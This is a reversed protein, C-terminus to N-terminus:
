LQGRVGKRVSHRRGRTSLDGQLACPVLVERAVLEDVAQGKAAVVLVHPHVKDEENRRGGGVIPGADLKISGQLATLIPAHHQQECHETDQHLRVLLVPAAPRHQLFTVTGHNITEVFIAPPSFTIQDYSECCNTV